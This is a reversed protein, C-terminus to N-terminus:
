PTKSFLMDFNADTSGVLQGPVSARFTSGVLAAIYDGGTTTSHFTFTSSTISWHGADSGVQAASGDATGTFTVNYTNDSHLNAVGSIIVQNHSAHPVTFPLNADGVTQLTWTHDLQLLDGGCSALSVTLLAAACLSLALRSMTRPM